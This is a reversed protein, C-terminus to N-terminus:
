PSRKSRATPNSMRSSAATRAFTVSSPRRLGLPHVVPERDVLDELLTASGSISGARGVNTVPYGEAILGSVRGSGASGTSASRHSMKMAPM